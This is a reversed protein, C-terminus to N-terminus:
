HDEDPSQTKLSEYKPKGIFPEKCEVWTKLLEVQLLPNKQTLYKFCDSQMVANLNQVAFKLCAFKLETAHNRDALLLINVVSDTSIDNCLVSECMLKLRSLDFKEAAALLKAPFTESVSSYLSSRSKYLERDHILSDRYIFHLLAKFVRPEIDNVLIHGDEDKERGNVFETLFLKSRTALVLKHAHFKQGRVSFTIDSFAGSDLLMGFQERMDSEPVHIKNLKSSDSCSTVVVGITCEIKLCDDKLFGSAELDKRNCFRNYGWMSGRTKFVCPGCEFSHDYHTGAHRKRKPTQDLMNIHYFTPVDTANSYLTIFLSVYSSNDKSYKGDPYFQIGWEYGGVSFKKSGICKGIGMGKTLSYGKIEFMHSGLVTETVSESSSWSNVSRRRGGTMM